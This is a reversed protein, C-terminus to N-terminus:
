RGINERRWFYVKSSCDISSASVPSIIIVMSFTISRIIVVFVSWCIRQDSKQIFFIKKRKFSATGRKKREIKLPRSRPGSLKNAPTLVAKVKGSLVNKEQVKAKIM